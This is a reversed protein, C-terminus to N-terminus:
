SFCSRSFSSHFSYDHGPRIRSWSAHVELAIVSQNSRLTQLFEVADHKFSFMDFKSTDQSRLDTRDETWFPHGGRMLTGICEWVIVQEEWGRQRVRLGDGSLGGRFYFYFDCSRRSGLCSIGM